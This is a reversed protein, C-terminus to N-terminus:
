QGRGRKWLGGVIAGGLVCLGIAVLPHAKVWTEIGSFDAMGAARHRAEGEGAEGEGAEAHRAALDAKLVSLRDAISTSDTM